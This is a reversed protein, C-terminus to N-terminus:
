AGRVDAHCGCCARTSIVGFGGVDGGVGVTISVLNCLLLLRPRANDGFVESMAVDDAISRNLAGDLEVVLVADGCLEEVFQILQIALVVGRIAGLSGILAVADGLTRCGEGVGDERTQARVKLLSGIGGSALLQNVKTLLVRTALSGCILKDLIM